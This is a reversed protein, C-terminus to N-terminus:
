YSRLTNDLSHCVREKRGRRTCVGQYSMHLFKLTGATRSFTSHRTADTDTEHITQHEIQPLLGIMMSCAACARKPCVSRPYQRVRVKDEGGADKAVECRVEDGACVLPALEVGIIM